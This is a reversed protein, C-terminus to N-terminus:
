SSLVFTSIAGVRGYERVALEREFGTGMWM